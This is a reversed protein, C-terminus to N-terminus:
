PSSKAGVKWTYSSGMIVAQTLQLAGQVNLERRWDVIPTKVVPMYLIVILTPLIWNRSPTTLTM